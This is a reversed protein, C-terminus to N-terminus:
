ERYYVKYVCASRDNGSFIGRLIRNRVHYITKIVAYKKPMAYLIVFASIFNKFIM